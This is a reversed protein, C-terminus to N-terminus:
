SWTPTTCRQVFRDKSNWKWLKIGKHKVKMWIQWREGTRKNVYRMSGDCSIYRRRQSLFTLNYFTKRMRRQQLAGQRWRTSGQHEGSSWIYSLGTQGFYVRRVGASVFGVARNGWGPFLPANEWRHTAASVSWFVFLSLSLPALSSQKTHFGASSISSHPITFFPKNSIQLIHKKEGGDRVGRRREKDRLPLRLSPNQPPYGDTPGRCAPDCQTEVAPPCGACVAVWCHAGCGCACVIVCVQHELPAERDVHTQKHKYCKTSLPIVSDHM